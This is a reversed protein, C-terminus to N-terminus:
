PIRYRIDGGVILGAIYDSMIPFKKQVIRKGIVEVEKGKIVFKVGDIGEELMDLVQRLTLNKNVPGSFTREPLDGENKVSIDYWRSLQKMISRVDNDKFYFINREVWAMVADTNVSDLVKLTGSKDIRAQQGPKLITSINNTFGSVKIKGELLTTVMSTEDGYANINFHTGLVQVETRGSSTLVFVRFPKLADKAVKFYVEGTVEVVRDNGIFETPYQISSEANLWAKSGDALTLTIKNGKATFLTNRAVGTSKGEYTLQGDHKIIKKGAETAVMGNDPSNLLIKSGNGLMLIASGNAPMIEPQSTVVQDVPKSLEEKKGDNVRSLFFSLGMLLVISAAVRWKVGSTNKRQVKVVMGAEDDYVDPVQMNEVVSDSRLYDRLQKEFQIDDTFSELLKQNEGSASLWADLEKQEEVSLDGALYKRILLRIKDARELM